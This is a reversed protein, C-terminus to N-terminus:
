HLWTLGVRKEGDHVDIQCAHEGYMSLSFHLHVKRDGFTYDLEKNLKFKENLAKFVERQKDRVEDLQVELQHEQIALEAAEQVCQEFKKM